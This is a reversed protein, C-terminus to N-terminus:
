VVSVCLKISYRSQSPGISGERTGRQIVQLVCTLGAKETSQRKVTHSTGVARAMAIESCGGGPITRTEVVTQSLVCIADHLSREAEDLLHTSAGRLVM